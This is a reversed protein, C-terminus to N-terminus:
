RATNPYVLLLCHERVIDAVNNGCDRGSSYANITKTIIRRGGLDVSSRADAADSTYLLCTDFLGNPGPNVQNTVRNDTGAAYHCSACATM